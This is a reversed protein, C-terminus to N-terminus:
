TSERERECGHLARWILLSRRWRCVRHRLGCSNRSPWSQPAHSHRSEGEPTKACYQRHGPDGSTEFALSNCAGTQSQHGESQCPLDETSGSGDMSTMRTFLHLSYGSRGAQLRARVGSRHCKMWRLVTTLAQSALHWPV